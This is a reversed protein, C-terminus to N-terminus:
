TPWRYAKVEYSALAFNSTKVKDSQNGGLLKIHTTTQSLFFAVHFGSTSGTAVDSTAGKKKVVTIAGEQGTTLEKGWTLWSKAAASNTGKYGAQLMVWNVFSSCWATEDITAKLSTASHYEIIRKNDEGPLTNEAIGDEARAIAMWDKTDSAAPQSVITKSVPQKQDPIGLKLGLATFTRPGVVGDCFLGRSKQFRRVADETKLGFDSDPMLHPPPTLLSNLLTQLLRVLPSRDHLQLTTM